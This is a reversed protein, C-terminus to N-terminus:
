PGLGSASFIAPVRGMRPRLFFSVDRFCSCIYKKPRSNRQTYLYKKRALLVIQQNLALRFSRCDVCYISYLFFFFEM